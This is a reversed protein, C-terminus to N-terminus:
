CMALYLFSVCKTDSDAEPFVASVWRERRHSGGSARGVGHSSVEIWEYGPHSFVSTSQTAGRGGGRWLTSV